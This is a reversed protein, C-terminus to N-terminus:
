DKKLQKAKQIIHLMHDNEFLLVSNAHKLLHATSLCSNYSQLPTDGKPHPWIAASILEACPFEDEFHEVLRSGFGSGTGGGVSHLM